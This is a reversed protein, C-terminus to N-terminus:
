SRLESNTLNTARSRIVQDSKRRMWFEWFIKLFKLMFGFIGSGQRGGLDLIAGLRFDVVGVGTFDLSPGLCPWFGSLRRLALFLFYSNSGWNNEEESIEYQELFRFIHHLLKRTVRSRINRNTAYRSRQVLFPNILNVVQGWRTFMSQTSNTCLM